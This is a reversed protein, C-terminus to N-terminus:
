EQEEFKLLAIKWIPDISKPNVASFDCTGFKINFVGM